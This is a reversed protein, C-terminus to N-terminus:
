PRPFSGTPWPAGPGTAAQDLARVMYRAGGPYTGLAARAAVGGADAPAYGLATWFAASDQVSVLASWAMGAGGAQALLHAVLRRALGRGHMRPAVSLDHLYLTDAHPAQEFDAGLPTLAGLRSPYAFLYACVGERDEALVCTEEAARLRRLLVSAAEQMSPPYCSAQVALVADLDERRMARLHAHHAHQM